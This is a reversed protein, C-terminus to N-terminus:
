KKNLNNISQNFNIVHKLVKEDNCYCQITAYTLFAFFQYLIRFILYENKKPLCLSFSPVKIEHMVDQVSMYIQRNM